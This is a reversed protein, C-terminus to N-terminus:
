RRRRTTLRPIAARAPHRARASSGRAARPQSARSTAPAARNAERQPPPPGPSRPPDDGERVARPGEREDQHRERRADSAAGQPSVGEGERGPPQRDPGQEGQRGRGKRIRAEHLHAPPPVSSPRSTPTTLKRSPQSWKSPWRVLKEGAGGRRRGDRPGVIPGSRPRHSRTRAGVVTQVQPSRARPPPEDARKSAFRPEQIRLSGGSPADIRGGADRWGDPRARAVPWIAASARKPPGSSARRSARPPSREPRGGDRQRDPAPRRGLPGRGRGPHAAQAKRRPRTGGYFLPMALRAAHRAAGPSGRDVRPQNARSRRPDSLVVRSRSTQIRRETPSTANRVWWGFTPVQSIMAEVRGPSSQCSALGALRRTRERMPGKGRGRGRPSRRVRGAGLSAKGQRTSMRSPAARRPLSSPITVKKSPSAARHPAGCGSRAEGNRRRGEADRRRQTKGSRALDRKSGCSRRSRAPVLLSRGRRGNGCPARRTSASRDARPRIAGAAGSPGGSPSRGSCPRGEPGGDERSRARRRGPSAARTM